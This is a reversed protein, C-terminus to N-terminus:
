QNYFTNPIESCRQNVTNTFFRAYAPTLSGARVNIKVICKNNKMKRLWAIIIKRVVVSFKIKSTKTFVLLKLELLYQILIVKNFYNLLKSTQFLATTNL